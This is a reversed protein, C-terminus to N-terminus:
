PSQVSIWTSSCCRLVYALREGFVNADNVEVGDENHASDLDTSRRGNKPTLPLGMAQLESPELSDVSEIHRLPPILNQEEVISQMGLPPCPHARDLTTAAEGFSM